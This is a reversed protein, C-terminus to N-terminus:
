QGVVVDVLALIGPLEGAPQPVHAGRNSVPEASAM